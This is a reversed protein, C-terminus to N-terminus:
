KLVKIVTSRSVRVGLKKLEGLVRTYGWSNEKALRIILAQVDDSTAPRGSKRAKIRTTMREEQVWRM